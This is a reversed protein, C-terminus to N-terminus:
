QLTEVDCVIMNMRVSTLSINLFFNGGGEASYFMRRTDFKTCIDDHM